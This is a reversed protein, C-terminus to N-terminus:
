NTRTLQHKRLASSHLMVKREEVEEATIIRKRANRRLGIANRIVRRLPPTKNGLYLNTSGGDSTREKAWVFTNKNHRNQKKYKEAFWRFFFECVHAPFEEDTSVPLHVAVLFAEPLKDLGQVCGLHVRIDTHASKLLLQVIENLVNLM